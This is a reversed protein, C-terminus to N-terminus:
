HLVREQDITPSCQCGSSGPRSRSGCLPKVLCFHATTGLRARIQPEYVRTDSLQLSLSRRPGTVLTFFFFCLPKLVRASSLPSLRAPPPTTRRRSFPRRPPGRPHVQLPRAPGGQLCGLPLDQTLTGCIVGSEPPMQIPTSKLFWRNAGPNGGPRNVVRPSSQEEEEKSVNCTRSPGQAKLQTICSDILRM